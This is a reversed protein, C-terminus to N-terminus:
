WTNKRAKKTIQESIEAQNDQFWNCIDLLLVMLQTPAVGGSMFKLRGSNDMMAVYTEIKWNVQDPSFRQFYVESYLKLIKLYMTTNM